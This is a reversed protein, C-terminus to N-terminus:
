PTSAVDLKLGAAHTIRSLRGIGFDTDPPESKGRWGSDARLPQAIEPAVAVNRWERPNMM